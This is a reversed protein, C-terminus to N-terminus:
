AATTLRAASANPVRRPAAMVVREVVDLLRADAELCWARFGERPAREPLRALADLDFDPHALAVGAQEADAANLAQEHHGDLPVMLVPKGLFAAECVSEFGATCMVARCGAMMQLFKDGDLAHFSLTDDVVEVAPAGPRDYFCHLSVHPNRAHWARVSDAYGHTAVYVLVYDGAEPELNLVRRRLLPPAVIVRDPTTPPSGGPTFSLALKWSRWGVLRIFARLWWPAVPTGAPAGAGLGLLAFQHAAAIVPVPLPRLAQLLGTLPEFFNVVLDPRAEDIVRQLTAFSRRWTGAHRAAHALTAPLDVGRDQRFIFGPSAVQTVPAPFAQAFFAPLDRGPHNGAVVGVLEHGAAALVQHAAIAQTLHGRGQGQVTFLIRM